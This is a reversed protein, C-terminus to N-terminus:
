RSPPFHATQELIQRVDSLAKTCTALFFHDGPYM